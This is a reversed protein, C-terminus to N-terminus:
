SSDGLCIINESFQLLKDTLINIDLYQVCLSFSSGTDAHAEIYVKYLNKSRNEHVISYM